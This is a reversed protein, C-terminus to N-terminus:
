YYTTLLVYYATLLLYYATLLLYYTTLLVQWGTIFVDLFGDGNYDSRPLYYTTLLLYYTTFLLCYLHFLLYDLFGDGIYDSLQSPLVCMAKSSYSPIQSRTVVKGRLARQASWPNGGKIALPSLLTDWLSGSSAAMAPTGICLIESVLSNTVSLCIWAAM